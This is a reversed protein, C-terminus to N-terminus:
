ECFCARRFASGADAASLTTVAAARLHRVFGLEDCAKLSLMASDGRKSERQVAAEPWRPETDRASMSNDGAAELDMRTPDLYAAAVRRAAAPSEGAISEDLAEGGRSRARMDSLADTLQRVVSDQIDRPLYMYIRTDQRFRMITREPHAMNHM